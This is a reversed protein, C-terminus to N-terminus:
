YVSLPIQKLHTEGRQMMSNQSYGYYDLSGLSMKRLTQRKEEFAELVEQPEDETLRMMLMGMEYATLKEAMLALQSVAEELGELNVSACSSSAQHLLSEIADSVRIDLEEVSPLVATTM